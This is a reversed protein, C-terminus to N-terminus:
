INLDIKAAEIFQVKAKAAADCREKIREFYSLNIVHITRTNASRILQYADKAGKRLMLEIGVEVSQLKENARQEADLFEQHEPFLAVGDAKTPSGELGMQTLVRADTHIRWLAQTIEEASSIALTYLRYKEKWSEQALWIGKSVDGKIRENIWVGIASGIATVFLWVVLFQWTDALTGNLAQRAIDSATLDAM